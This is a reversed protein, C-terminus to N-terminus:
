LRLRPSKKKHMRVGPVTICYQIYEGTNKQQGVTLKTTKYM